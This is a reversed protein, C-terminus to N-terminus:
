CIYVFQTKWAYGLPTKIQLDFMKDVRLRVLKCFLLGLEYVDTFTLDEAGKFLQHFQRWTIDHSNDLLLKSINGNEKKKKREGKRVYFTRFAM